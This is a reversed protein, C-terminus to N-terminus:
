GRYGWGDDEVEAELVEIYRLIDRASRNAIMLLDLRLYDCGDAAVRLEEVGAPRELM